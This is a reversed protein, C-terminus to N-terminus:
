FMDKLHWNELDVAPLANQQVFLSSHLHSHLMVMMKKGMM